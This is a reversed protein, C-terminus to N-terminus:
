NCTSPLTFLTASPESVQFSTWTINAYTTDRFVGNYIQEHVPETPSSRTVFLYDHLGTEYGPIRGGNRFYYVNTHKGDITEQRLFQYGSPVGTNPLGGSNLVASCSSADVNYTYHTVTGNQNDFFYEQTHSIRPPNSDFNDYSSATTDIRERHNSGDVYISSTSNTIIQGLPISLISDTKIAGIFNTPYSPDVPAYGCPSGNGVTPVSSCEPGQFCLCVTGAPCSFYYAGNVGGNCWYFGVGNEACYKGTPGSECFATANQAAIATVGMFLILIAIKM